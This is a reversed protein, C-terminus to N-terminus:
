HGGGLRKYKHAMAFESLEKCFEGLSGTGNGNSDFNNGATQNNKLIEKDKKEKTKEFIGLFVQFVGLIKRVKRIRLVRSFLCFVSLFVLSVGLM